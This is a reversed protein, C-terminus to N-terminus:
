NGMEMDMNMLMQWHRIIDIKLGKKQKDMDM